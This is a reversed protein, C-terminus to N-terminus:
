GVGAQAADTVSIGDAFEVLQDDTLGLSDWAQVVVDHKGDMYELTTATGPEDRLYGTGGHVQVPHDTKHFTADQSQLMVVLKDQFDNIDTADGPRTVALVAPSVGQLVFGEPVQGVTFGPQQAGTYDVLKLGAAKATTAGRHTPAASPPATTDPQNAVAVFAVAGVAALTVSGTALRVARRRGAARAGRRVDGAVQEDTTPGPAPRLTRLRGEIEHHESM